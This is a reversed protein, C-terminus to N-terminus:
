RSRRSETEKCGGKPGTKVRLRKFFCVYTTLASLGRDLNLKRNKVEKEGSLVEGRGKAIRENGSIRPHGAHRSRM